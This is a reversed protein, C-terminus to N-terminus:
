QLIQVRADKSGRWTDHSEDLPPGLSLRRARLRPVGCSSSEALDVVRQIQADGAGLVQRLAIVSRDHWTNRRRTDTGTWAEGWESSAKKFEEIWDKTVIRRAKLIM